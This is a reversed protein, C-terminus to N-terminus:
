VLSSVRSSNTWRLPKGKEEEQFTTSVESSTPRGDMQNRNCTQLTNDWKNLKKTLLEAVMAEDKLCWPWELLSHCRIWQLDEELLSREKEGKPIGLVVMKLTVLPLETSEKWRM